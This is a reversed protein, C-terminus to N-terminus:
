KKQYGLFATNRSSVFKWFLNNLDCMSFFTKKKNFQISCNSLCGGLMQDGGKMAHNGSLAIVESSISPYEEELQFFCNKERACTDEELYIGGGYADASNNLIRLKSYKSFVLKSMNLYLGGGNQGHNGSLTVLNELKITSNILKIGTCNNNTINVNSLTINNVSEISLVSCKDGNLKRNHQFSSKEITVMSTIYENIITIVENGTHNSFRCKSIKAEIGRWETNVSIARSNNIFTTDSIETWLNDYNNRNRVKIGTDMNSDFICDEIKLHISDKLFLGSKSNKSFSSRRLTVAIYDYSNDGFDITIGNDDSNSFTSNDILITYNRHITYSWVKKFYFNGGQNRQLDCNIIRLTLNLEAVLRVDVGNCQSYQKGDHIKTNNIEVLFVPAKGRIAINGKNNIFTCNFIIQKRCDDAYVGWGETNKVTVGSLTYQANQFLLTARLTKPRRNERKYTRNCHLMVVLEVKVSTNESFGIGTEGQCEIISPPGQSAGCIVTEQVSNNFDLNRNLIHTGSTLYMHVTECSTQNITLDSLTHFIQHNQQCQSEGEDGNTICITANSCLAKACAAFLLLFLVEKLSVM